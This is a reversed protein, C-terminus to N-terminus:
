NSNIMALCRQEDLFPVTIPILETTYGSLGDLEAAATEHKGKYAVITGSNSSGRLPKCLRALKKVFAPTLPSLARFTVIDFNVPVRELETEEVTINAIGHAVSNLVAATNRLFDARRKMREILVVQLQPMCVALPIGPLGAGSGLDALAKESFNNELLRAIHGLPALSDLIHKVILENRDIVKVLGYISNFREVENIYCNLLETIEELRDKILIAATKDTECIQELGRVLLKM